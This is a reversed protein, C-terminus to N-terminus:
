VTRFRGFDDFQELPYGLPNMRSHCKACAAAQTVSHLRERLTRPPDDPIKADVTIPVDPVVGALLKERIWRGRRVPDTHTNSAFAVLWAPHTLIGKRHPLAFPQVPHYDFQDNTGYEGEHGPTKPLNYIPSYWYHNAFTWPPVTFPTRGQGFTYEFYTMFRTVTNRHKDNS